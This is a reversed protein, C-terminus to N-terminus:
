MGHAHCVRIGIKRLLEITNEYCAKLGLCRSLFRIVIVCGNRESVRELMCNNSSRLHLMHPRYQEFLAAATNLLCRFHSPINPRRETAGTQPSGPCLPVQSECVVATTILFYNHTRNKIQSM